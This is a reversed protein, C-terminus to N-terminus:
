LIIELCIYICKQVFINLTALIQSVNPPLSQSFFKMDRGLLEYCAEFAWRQNSEFEVTFFGSYNLKLLM